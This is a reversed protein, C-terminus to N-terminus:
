SAEKGVRVDGPTECHSLAAESELAAEADEPVVVRTGVRCEIPLAALHHAIRDFESQPLGALVPPPALNSLPRPDIRSV